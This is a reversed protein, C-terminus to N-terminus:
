RNVIRGGFVDRFPFRGPNIPERVPPVPPTPPASITVNLLAPTSQNGSNDEVVLRFTYIGPQLGGAVTIETERTEVSKGPTFVVEAM